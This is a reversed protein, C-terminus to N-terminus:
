HNTPIDVSSNPPPPVEYRYGKSQMCGSLNIGGALSSKGHEKGSLVEAKCTDWDEQTEEVSTKTPHVWRGEACATLALVVMLFAIKM